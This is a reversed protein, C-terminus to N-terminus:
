RTQLIHEVKQIVDTISLSSNTFGIEPTSQIWQDIKKQASVVTSHSRNGFYRGIESLASRTYKRALWMALMRPQTTQKARSRSQLTQSNLQLTECVAKEVDQLRIPRSNNRILDELITEALELTIPKGGSLVTAHLRNIAGSLQRAHTPLNTVVYQCVNEPLKLNRSTAMQQFIKLLTEHEAPKIECPMGAEIRAVIEPKLIDSLAAVSRDGTLVIQVGQNKLQDLTRLFETQTSDKGEFFPIDDILLASIGRFKNRFLPIGQKLGDIFASTFQEATMLLPPKAQLDRRLCSKIAELIHTKGVSTPGFIYIPSIKGTYQVALEAAHVALRNSTGTVFNGFSLESPVFATNGRRKNQQTEGFAVVNRNAADRNVTPTLATKTEQRRLNRPPLHNVFSTSSSNKPSNESLFAGSFLGNQNDNKRMTIQASKQSTTVNSLKKRGNAIIQENAQRPSLQHFLNGASFRQVNNLTATKRVNDNKNNRNNQKQNIPLADNAQKILSKSQQIIKHEEPVVVSVENNKRKTEVKTMETEPSVIEVNRKEGLIAYCIRRIEALFNKRIWDAAFANIARIQVCFKHIAITANKTFWMEFRAIGLTEVLANQIDQEVEMGFTTM